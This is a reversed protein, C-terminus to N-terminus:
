REDRPLVYLTLALESPTPPLHVRLSRTELIETWYHSRTDLRFTATQSSSPLSPPPDFELAVPVGRTATNVLTALQNQSAVKAYASLLRTLTQEDAGSAAIYVRGALASPDQIALAFTTGDRTLPFALHPERVVAPIVTLLREVVARFCPGPAEHEYRIDTEHRSGDLAELQGLLGTLAGHLECATLLRSRGEDLIALAGNITSLLLLSPLSAPSLARLDLPRTARTGLLNKQRVRLARIVEETAGGIASAPPVRLMPPLFWPDLTLQRALFSVRAVPIREYPGRGEEDYLLKFLPRLETDNKRRERLHRVAAQERADESVNPAESSAWALALWVVVSDRGKPLPRELGEGAIVIPTGSRFRGELRAVRFVGRALATPDIGFHTIGWAEGALMLFSQAVLAEAYTESFQRAQPLIEGSQPWLPKRLSTDMKM